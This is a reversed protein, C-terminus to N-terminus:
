NVAQIKYARKPAILMKGNPMLSPPPLTLGMDTQVEWRKVGTSSISGAKIYSADNIYYMNDFDDLLLGEALGQDTFAQCRWKETGATDCSVIFGNHYYIIDNKSTIAPTSYSNVNPKTWKTNGNQDLCILNRASADVYYTNGYGDIVMGFLSLGTPKQWLVIGNKDTRVVSYNEMGNYIFTQLNGAKDITIYNYNYPGKLSENTWIIGGNSSVATLGNSLFTYVTGDNGIAPKCLQANNIFWMEAGSSDLCYLRDGTGPKFAVTYLKSEDISLSIAAFNWQILSDRKWIVQGDPSFKYIAGLSYIQHMFYVYGRSDVCFQSGDSLSGQPFTYSWDLAGNMVSNMFSSSAYPSSTNRANFGFMPWAPKTDPIPNLPNSSESCGYYIISFLVALLLHRM